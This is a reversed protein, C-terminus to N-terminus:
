ALLDGVEPHREIYARVFQCQPVVKLGEARVQELAGAILRSGVGQGEEEEPVMTHTFTIVGGSREYAAFAPEAGTALEFRSEAQNDTVDM